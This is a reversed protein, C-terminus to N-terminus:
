PWAAQTMTAALAESELDHEIKQGACSKEKPRLPLTQVPDPQLERVPGAATVTAQSTATGVANRGRAYAVRAAGKKLDNQGGPARM